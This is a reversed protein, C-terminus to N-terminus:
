SASTNTVVAWDHPRDLHGDVSPYILGHSEHVWHLKAWRSFLVHHHGQLFTPLFPSSWILQSLGSESLCLGHTKVCTSFRSNFFFHCSCPLTGQTPSSSTEHSSSLPLCSVTTKRGVCFRPTCTVHFCFPLCNPILFPGLSLSLSILFPSLCSCMYPLVVPIQHMYCNWIHISTYHFSNDQIAVLM